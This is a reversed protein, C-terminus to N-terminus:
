ADTELLLLSILWNKAFFTTNYYWALQGLLYMDCGGWCVGFGLQMLGMPNIRPSAQAFIQLGLNGTRQRMQRM